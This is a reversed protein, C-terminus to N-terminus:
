GKQQARRACGCLRKDRSNLVRRMPMCMMPNTVALGDSKGVGDIPLRRWPM